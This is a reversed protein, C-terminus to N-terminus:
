IGMAKQIGEKSLIDLDLNQERYIHYVIIFHFHHKLLLVEELLPILMYNQCIHEGNFWKVVNQSYGFILVSRTGMHILWCLLLKLSQLEVYNNSGSGLGVLAKLSKKKNNIHIVFGAGCINQPDSAFDFYAWSIDGRIHEERVKRISKVNNPLPILGYISACEIAIPVHAPALDKFISRNQALWIAWSIILPLNKMNEEQTEDLMKALSRSHKRWGLGLEKGILEINRGMYKSQISVKLISTISIGEKKQM